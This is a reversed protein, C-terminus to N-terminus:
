YRVQAEKWEIKEEGYMDLIEKHGDIEIRLGNQIDM